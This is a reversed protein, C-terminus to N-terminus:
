DLYRSWDAYAKKYVIKGKELLRELMLDIDFKPYKAERAGIALNDFDIFLALRQEENNIMPPPGGTVTEAALSVASNLTESRIPARSPVPPTEPKGRRRAGGRRGRRKPQAPSTTEEDPM